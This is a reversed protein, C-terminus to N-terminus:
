CHNSFSSDLICLGKTSFASYGFRVPQALSPAQAPIPDLSLNIQRSNLRNPEGM